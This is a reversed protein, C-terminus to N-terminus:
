KLAQDPQWCPLTLLATEGIPRLGDDLKSIRGYIDRLTRKDEIIGRTCAQAIVDVSNILRLEGVAAGNRARRSLRRSEIAALRRGDGEDILVTVNNGQDALVAAHALVMVEGLDAGNKMREEFPVQTIRQVARQMAESSDEPLEEWFKATLRKMVQRAPRFREDRDSKRLIEERVVAPVSAPGIVRFLLRECNAAFFNLSPGADLIPRPANM